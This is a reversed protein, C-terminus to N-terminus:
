KFFEGVCAAMRKFIEKNANNWKLFGWFKLDQPRFLQSVDQEQLPGPNKEGAHVHCSGTMWRYSCSWPICYGRRVAMSVLYVWMAWVHALCEHMYFLIFLYMKFVSFSTLGM